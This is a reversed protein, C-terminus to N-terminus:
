ASCARRRHHHAAGAARRPLRPVRKRSSGFRRGSAHDAGQEGTAGRRDAHHGRRLVGLGRRECLLILFLYFRTLPSVGPSVIKAVPLLLKVLPEVLVPVSGTALYGASQERRTLPRHRRHPRHRVPVPEARPVRVVADHPAARGARGARRAGAVTRLRGDYRTQAEAAVASRTGRQTYPKGTAPNKKGEFDKQVSPRSYETTTRPRPRTTSSTPSSGGSSRCRRPHRAAAVLLKRPDLAIQFCRFIETWPPAAPLQVRTDHDRGDAM